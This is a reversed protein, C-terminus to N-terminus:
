KSYIQNIHYTMWRDSQSGDSLQLLVNLVDSVPIRKDKADFVKHTLWRYGNGDVFEHKYMDVFKVWSDLATYSKTYKVKVNNNFKKPEEVLPEPVSMPTADENLYYDPDYSAYRARTVDKCSADIEVDLDMKFWEELKVYADYHRDVECDVVIIAFLGAGSASKGVYYVESFDSLYQQVENLRSQDDIGDIDVTLLSNYNDINVIDRRTFTASPTIMPLGEKAPKKPKDAREQKPILNWDKLEGVYQQYKRRYDEVIEKYKDTTLFTKLDVRIDSEADFSNKYINVEYKM